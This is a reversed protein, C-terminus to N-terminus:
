LSLMSAFDLNLDYDEKAGILRGVAILYIGLDFYARTAYQEMLEEFYPIASKNCDPTAYLVNLYQKIHQIHEAYYNPHLDASVRRAAVDQLFAFTAQLRLWNAHPDTYDTSM